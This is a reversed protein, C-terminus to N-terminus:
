SGISEAGILVNEWHKFGNPLNGWFDVCFIIGKPNNNGKPRKFM